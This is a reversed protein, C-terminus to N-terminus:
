ILAARRPAKGGWRRTLILRQFRTLKSRENVCQDVHKGNSSKPIIWERHVREALEDFTIFLKASTETQEIPDGGGRAM